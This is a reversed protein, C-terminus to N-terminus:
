DMQKVSCHLDVRGGVHGGFLAGIGVAVVPLVVAVGAYSLLFNIQEGTADEEAAAGDEPAQEAGDVEM